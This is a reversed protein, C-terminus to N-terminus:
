YGCSATFRHPHEQKPVSKLYACSLAPRANQGGSLANKFHPFFLLAASLRSELYFLSFDSWEGPPSVTQTWCFQVTQYQRNIILIGYFDV